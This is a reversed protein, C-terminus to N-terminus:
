LRGAAAQGLTTMTASTPNGSSLLVITVVTSGKEFEMLGGGTLFANDGIGTVDQFGPVGGKAATRTGAYSAQATSGDPYQTARVTLSGTATNYACQGGGSNPTGADTGLATSAEQATILTCPDPASGGAAPAATAGSTAAPGSATGQSPATPATGGGPTSGGCAAVMLASAALAGAPALLNFRIV